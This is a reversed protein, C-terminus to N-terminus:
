SYERQCASLEWHLVDEGWPRGLHQNWTACSRSIVLCFAEMYHPWSSCVFPIDMSLQQEIDKKYVTINIQKLVNRTINSTNKYLDKNWHKLVVVPDQIDHVSDHLTDVDNIRVRVTILHIECSPLVEVLLSYSDPPLWDPEVLEHHVAEGWSELPDPWIRPERLKPVPFEFKLM